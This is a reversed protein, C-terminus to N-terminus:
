TWVIDDFLVAPGAIFPLAEPETAPHQALWNARYIATAEENYPLDKLVGIEDVFMDARRDQWLVTVHELAAGDLAREILARLAPWPVDGDRTRLEVDRTEAPQGPRLIHMRTKM